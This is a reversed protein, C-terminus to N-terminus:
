SSTRSGALLRELYRAILDVEVNVRTGPRYDGAITVSRTHPILNIECSSEGVGNVTLSVGDIAVSGKRAVYRALQAPVGVVIATSRGADTVSLIEGVGDVHGSVLHGDLTDGIRMPPELNARTGLDARGLTTVALTEASVDASFRDPALSTVTLCVGNVAVSAGLVLEGLAEAPYGITLTRDVGTDRREVIRGVAKVIGSFM